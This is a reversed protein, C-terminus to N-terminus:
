QSHEDISSRSNSSSSNSNSGFSGMPIDQFSANMRSEAVAGAEALIRDVDEGSADFAFSNNSMSGANIMIDSFVGNIEGLETSVEPM